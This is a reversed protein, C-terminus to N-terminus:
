DLRDYQEKDGETQTGELQKQLDDRKTFLSLLKVQLSKQM